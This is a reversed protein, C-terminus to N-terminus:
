IWQEKMFHKKKKLIKENKDFETSKIVKNLKIMDFDFRMGINELFKFIKLTTSKKKNILNKM